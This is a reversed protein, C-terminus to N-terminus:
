KRVLRYTEQYITKRPGIAVIEIVRRSPVRYVVRLRGVRYTLLGELEAQLAKGAHPDSMIIELAARVKRKIGPHLNKILDVTEAPVRLRYQIKNNM